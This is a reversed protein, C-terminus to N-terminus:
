PAKITDLYARIAEFQKRSNGGLIDPRVATGDDNTYKPMKTGPVLRAPNHMWRFYYDDRLRHPTLAFNIGKVEFTPMLEKDGVAHCTVCAYGTMSVLMEGTTQADPLDSAFDTAKSPPLGHHAALSKALAASRNKFGPMRMDLWPRARASGHLINESFSTHLAAGLHDLPPRSQDASVTEPLGKALHASEAHLKSLLSADAYHTHCSNCRLAKTQRVAYAAPHDRHVRSILEKSLSQWQEPTLNARVQKCGSKLEQLDSFAPAAMASAPLDQHCANCNLAKVQALGETANGPPFEAPDPTHHGTSEATLYSALSNAEEESLGFNPMKTSPHHQAPNKLFAMLSNGAFKAAVNNLPIRRNKLDPETQNPLTHCAVCGLRHFHGGGMRVFQDGPTPSKSPTTGLTALYAAIDAAAQAGEPTAHDVMAPMNTTPKLKDPQAIWRTLWAQQRRAALNKLSPGSFHADPMAHPGIKQGSQHCALCNHKVLLSAAENATQQDELKQFATAPVPERPFARREEWFLRVQGSGDPTSQYTLKLPHPGPNLRIRSSKKGIIPGEILKKGAIELTAQGKGEVSFFLRYRKPVVLTGEITSTFPGAALGPAPPAGKEAIHAPLDTQFTASKGNATVTHTIRAALAPTAITVLLALLTLRLSM